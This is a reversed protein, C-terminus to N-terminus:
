RLETPLVALIMTATLEIHEEMLRCALEANRNLAAEAIASHESQVDRPVHRFQLFNRRYRDSLDYLTDCFQLLVPLRCAGILATHFKRHWGEWAEDIDDMKAPNRSKFKSLHHMSSVVETEWADDGHQISRQLAIVELSKRLLTVERLNDASVPAVQFGRQDAAQLVLGESVLRSIAERLPSFSVDYTTRLQDLRLKEGPGIAGTLIEKRLRSLTTSFVTGSETPTKTHAM